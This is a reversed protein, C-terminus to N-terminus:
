LGAFCADYPEQMKCRICCCLPYTFQLSVVSHPMFFVGFHKEGYKSCSEASQSLIQRVTDSYILWM